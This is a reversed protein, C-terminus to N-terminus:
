THIQWKKDRNKRLSIEQGSVEVGVLDSDKMRIYGVLQAEMQAQTDFLWATRRELLELDESRGWHTFRHCLYNLCFMPKFLFICGQQGLYCCDVDTDRVFDVDVGALMNMLLQVVDTEAAFATSCCGGCERGCEGCIRDMDMVKMQQRLQEYRERLVSLLSATQGDVTLDQGYLAFLRKAVALKEGVGAAYFLEYLKSQVIM